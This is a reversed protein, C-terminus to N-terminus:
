DAQLTQNQIIQHNLSATVNTITIQQSDIQKQVQELSKMVTDSGHQASLFELLMCKLKLGADTAVGLEKDPAAVQEELEARVVKSGELEAYLTVVVDSSNVSSGQISQPKERTAQLDDKLLLCQTTSVLLEKPLGNTKAVLSGDRRKNEIYYHGLSFLLITAAIIVYVLTQFPSRRLVVTFNGLEPFEPTLTEELVSPVDEPKQLMSLLYGPVDSSDSEFGASPDYNVKCASSNNEEDENL